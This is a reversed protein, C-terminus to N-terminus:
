YIIKCCLGKLRRVVKYLMNNSEGIGWGFCVSFIKLYIEMAAINVDADDNFM